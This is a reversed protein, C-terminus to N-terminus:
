ETAGSRAKKTGQAMNASCEPCLDVMQGYVGGRRVYTWGVARARNRAATARVKPGTTGRTWNYCNEGDCFVDTTVTIVTAGTITNQVIM